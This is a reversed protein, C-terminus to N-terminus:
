AAHLESPKAERCADRRRQPKSSKTCPLPQPGVRGTGRAHVLFTMACEYCKILILDAGYVARRRSSRAAQRAASWEVQEGGAASRQTENRKSQCRAVPGYSFLYPGEGQGGSAARRQM